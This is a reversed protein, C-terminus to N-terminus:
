DKYKQKEDPTNENHPSFLVPPFGFLPANGNVICKEIDKKNEKLLLSLRKWEPNGIKFDQFVFGKNLESLNGDMGGM